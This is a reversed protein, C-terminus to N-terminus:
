SGVPLEFNDYFLIYDFHAPTTPAYEPFTIAINRMPMTNTPLIMAHPPVLIELWINHDM